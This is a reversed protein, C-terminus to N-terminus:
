GKQSALIEELQVKHREAHCILFEFAEPLHFSIIPGIASAFRKHKMKKTRSELISGKLEEHTQQFRDFVTNAEEQTIEKALLPEFKKLTKIKFSRKTGKPRQGDIVFQNWFGPRYEWVTGMADPTQQMAKEIKTKYMSYAISLHEVVELVNWSKENPRQTLEALSLEELSTVFSFLQNLRQIQNEPTLLLKAM